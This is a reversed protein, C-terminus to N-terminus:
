RRPSILHAKTWTAGAPDMTFDAGMPV